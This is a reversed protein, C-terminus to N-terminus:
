PSQNISLLKGKWSTAGLGDPTRIEQIHVCYNRKRQNIVRPLAQVQNPTAKEGGDEGWSGQVKERGREKNRKRILSGQSSIVFDGWQVKHGSAATSFLAQSSRAAQGPLGVAPCDLRSLPKEQGRERARERGRILKGQWHIISGPQASPDGPSMSKSIPM